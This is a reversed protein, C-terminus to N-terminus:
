CIRSTRLSNLVDPLIRYIQAAIFMAGLPDGFTGATPPGIVRVAPQKTGKATLAQCNEDVAFGIGCEDPILWGKSMLASLFPSSSVRSLVDLGTCNIIAEFAECRNAKGQTPAFCVQLSGSAELAAVSQIHEARFEIRGQAQAARVLSETQPPSRFRHM